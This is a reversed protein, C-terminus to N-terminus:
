QEAVRVARDTADQVAELERVADARAAQGWLRLMNREQINRQVQCVRRSRPPNRGVDVGALVVAPRIEGLIGRVEKGIEVRQDTDLRAVGYEGSGVGPTFKSMPGPPVPTISRPDM